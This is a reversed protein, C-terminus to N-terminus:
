DNLENEDNTMSVSEIYRVRGDTINLFDHKVSLTRVIM